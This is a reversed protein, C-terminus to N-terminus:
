CALGGAGAPGTRRARVATDALVALGAAAMCVAGCALTNLWINEPLWRFTGCWSILVDYAAHAVILPALRRWRLLAYANVASFAGDALGPPGYYLHFAARLAFTVAIIPGTRMGRRALLLVLIAFAGEEVVANATSAFLMKTFGYLSTFNAPFGSGTTLAGIMREVLGTPADHVMLEIILAFLMPSVLANGAMSAVLARRARPAHARGPERAAVNSGPCLLAFWLLTVVAMVCRQSTDGGNIKAMAVANCVGAAFAVASFAVVLRVREAALWAPARGTMRLRVAVVAAACLALATTLAQLHPCWDKISNVTQDSVVGLVWGNIMLAKATPPGLLLVYVIGAAAMTRARPPDPLATRPISAPRGAPQWGQASDTPKETEPTEAAPDGDPMLEWPLSPHSM